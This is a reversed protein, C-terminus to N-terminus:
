PKLGLKGLAYGVATTAILIVVAMAVKAVFGLVRNWKAEAAVKKDRENAVQKQLDAETIDHLSDATDRVVPKLEKIDSEM